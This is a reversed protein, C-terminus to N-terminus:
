PVGASGREARVRAEFRALTRALSQAMQRRIFLVDVVPTLLSRRTLRYKLALTVTVGDPVGSFTVTQSGTMAEDSVEVTQGDAPAHAIVRETVRGRGAPGSQWTVSGGAHPWPAATAVVHDLGDVWTAWRGTDYWCREAEPVSTALTQTAQVARM